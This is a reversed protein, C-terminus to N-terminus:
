KMRRWHKKDWRMVVLVLVVFFVAIGVGIVHNWTM